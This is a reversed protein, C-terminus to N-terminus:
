SPVATSAILGRSSFSVSANRSPLDHCASVAVYVLAVDGEVIGVRRDELSVLKLRNSILQLVYEIFELRDPYRVGNIMQIEIGSIDDYRLM